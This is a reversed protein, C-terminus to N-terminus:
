VLNPEAARRAFPHSQAILKGLKEFGWGRDRPGTSYGAIEVAGDFVILGISQVKKLAGLSACNASQLYDISKSLGAPIVWSM